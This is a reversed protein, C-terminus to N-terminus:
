IPQRFLHHQRFTHMTTDGIKNKTFYKYPIDDLRSIIYYLSYSGCSHNDSQNSIKSVIIDNVKKDLTKEMHHKTKKMWQSIEPLPDQGTSNFYELTFPESNFDGFISFWHQGRGSSIDTNFVVGFCRVGNNYEKALDIKSLESGTSEFDRMQFEIHLFKKEKYKIAIQELVKDINVNSFWENSDFPGEPKFRNDLQNEATGHGIVDKIESKTLLCSENKCNFINKLKDITDKGRKVILNKVDTAYKELKNVITDDMCVGSKAEINFACENTEKLLDM